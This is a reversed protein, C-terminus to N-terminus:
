AFLFDAWADLSRLFDRFASNSVITPVKCFSFLDRCVFIVSNSVSFWTSFFSNTVKCFIMMSFGRRELNNEFAPFKIRGGASVVFEAM